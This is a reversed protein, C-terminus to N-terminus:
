PNSRRFPRDTAFRFVTESHFTQGPKLETTPFQPKNPSDPFNQTELAFGDTQRYTRGASGVHSGDLFNSTYVQVGPETTYCDLVRGSRPEYARAAFSLAGLSPKNLVWNHDYGHAYVLPQFSSRLRAGISTATRFDMPTGNVPSLEGTPILTADTPTFRDANITLIQDEVTGSGNGALNFYSHNTLNLVTDKDTRAEYTIRLADDNTLTYTVRVTLTGPFGEQGDPSTLTLTAGVGDNSRLPEVRWVQKDFGVNGGHLFNPGNNAALKYEHGDLTFRAQGIRNAYRGILAGFYISAGNTKYEELTRFGLVVNALQGQRDPVDIETIIGGYSLFKVVMGHDNTLTYIEVQEGDKTTGYAGHDLKAARGRTTALALATGLWPALSWMSSDIPM